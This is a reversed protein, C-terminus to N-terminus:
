KKMQIAKQRPKKAKEKKGTLLATKLNDSLISIKSTRSGEDLEDAEKVKSIVNNLEAEDVRRALRLGLLSPFINRYSKRVESVSPALTLFKVLFDPNMIYRSGNKDVLDKTFELIVSEGTLWWTRYGYESIKSHERRKKRRGYVSLALLADNQAIRMSVKKEVLRSALENVNSADTIERLDDEDEYLLGFEAQLYRKVAEKAIPKRLDLYDCYQSIFHQWNKPATIGEPAALKAYFYARILIKGAHRAIDLSISREIPAFSNSFEIDAGILNHLVEDLVPETLILTGGSSKIIKLTNRTLQDEPRLYRESLSRVILDSGVYLYFDAAMNQFYEVVRPETNLCFLLTYTASLRLLFLRENESSAYFTQQLNNLTADKVVKWKSQSINNPALEDLTESVTALPNSNPREGKIFASFELGQNEYLKQLAMLSIDTAIQIDDPSLTDNYKAIKRVFGDRVESRIIEDKTNDAEVRKRISYALCYNDQKRHWKISQGKKRLEELRSNFATKILKSSAPITEKIKDFIQQPTMFIKHDPDTGELAWLILGDTIANVLSDKQKERRELEQRLFVYVTPSNVAISPSFSDTSSGLHKLYDLTPELFTHFAARTGHTDNIHSVIYSKERIKIRIGYKTSLDDEESDLKPIPQSTLYILQTIHRGYEKLRNITKRIKDRHNQEISAQYFVTPKESDEWLGQDEFADAGGDHTGGMPIFNVGFLSPFYANVFREFLNGQVKELALKALEYNVSGSNM